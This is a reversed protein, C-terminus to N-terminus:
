NIFQIFGPVHALPFSGSVPYMMKLFRVTLFIVASAKLWFHPLAPAWAEVSLAALCLEQARLVEDYKCDSGLIPISFIWSALFDTNPDPHLYYSSTKRFFSDPRTVWDTLGYALFAYTEPELGPRARCKALSWLWKRSERTIGVDNHVIPIVFACGRNSYPPPPPLHKSNKKHM